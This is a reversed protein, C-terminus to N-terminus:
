LVTSLRRIGEDIRQDSESAFCLRLHAAGPADHFADGSVVAVGSALAAEAVATACGRALELWCFMGGAPATWRAGSGVLHRALSRMMAQSRQHYASRIAQLHAPWDLAALAEALIAQSLSNAHLSTAQVGAILSPILEPPALIWGMRLGPAVTKSFSGVMITRTYSAALPLPAPQAPAHLEGYADDEILWLQREQLVQCLAERAPASLTRGTPNHGTAILCLAAAPGGDLDALHPGDRDGAILRIAAGSLQLSQVAGPYAPREVAISQGPGALAMGALLLGHQSGNTIVIREASAPVGRRRLREAIWDRLAPLGDSAQYALCGGALLCRGAAEALLRRPVFRPDPLGGALAIRSAERPLALIRRIPSPTLADLMAM